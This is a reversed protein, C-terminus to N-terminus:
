GGGSDSDDHAKRKEYMATEFAQIAAAPSPGFGAIGDQINDGYLACWQDGDPYIRAGLIVAWQRRKDAGDTEISVTEAARAFLNEPLEM